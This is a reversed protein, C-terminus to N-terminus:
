ENQEITFDKHGMCPWACALREIFTCKKGEKRFPEPLVNTPFFVFCFFVWFHFGGLVWVLFVLRLFHLHLGFGAQKRRPDGHRARAAGGADTADTFSPLTM